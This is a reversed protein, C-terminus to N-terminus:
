LVVHKGQQGSSKENQQLGRKWAHRGGVYLCLPFYFLWLGGALVPSLGSNWATSIHGLEWEAFGTPDPDLSRSWVWPCTRWKPLFGASFGPKQSDQKPQFERVRGEPLM